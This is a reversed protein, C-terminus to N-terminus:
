QLEESFLKGRGKELGLEILFLFNVKFFFYFFLFFFYFFYFVYFFYFFSSSLLTFNALTQQTTQIKTPGPGQDRGAGVLALWFPLPHNWFLFFNELSVVVAISSRIKQGSRNM